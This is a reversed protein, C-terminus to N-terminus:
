RYWYPYYYGGRARLIASVIINIVGLAIALWGLLQSRGFRRADRLSLYGFVIGLIGCCLLGLVIGLVGWLTTRDRGAASRRPPPYPANM